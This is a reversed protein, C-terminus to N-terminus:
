VVVNSFTENQISGLVDCDLVELRRPRASEFGVASRSEPLRWLGAPTIPWTAGEHIRRSVGGPRNRGGTAEDRFFRAFRGPNGRVERCAAPKRSRNTRVSYVETWASAFPSSPPPGDRRRSSRAVHLRQISHGPRRQRHPVPQEVLRVRPPLALLYRITHLVGVVYGPDHRDGGSGRPSPPGALMLAPRPSPDVAHGVCTFERIFATVAFLGFSASLSSGFPLAAPV